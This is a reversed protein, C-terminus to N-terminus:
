LVGFGARQLDVDSVEAGGPARAQVVGSVGDTGTAVAVEPTELKRRSKDRYMRSDATAMIAEYGDGDRPFVAAGVSIRIPVQRGPRPEFTVAEVARQLELRKRESEDAGCGVLVVVFEDGAYRICIDYPRIAARLVQAVECLARDGAGHGFTDNIAKFNDLDM